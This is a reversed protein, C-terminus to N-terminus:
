RAVEVRFLQDYDQLSRLEVVPPTVQHGLPLAALGLPLTPPVQRFQEPHPVVEQSRPRKTLQLLLQGGAFVRLQGARERVQVVSGAVGAQAPLGYQVGDYSVYGDWSVRREEAGFHEWVADPPLPTLGEEAWRALPVQLTTRHVRRNIQECWARAQTNLDDLDGFTVGPWFSQKVMGISREVKGKTQPKRPRCVRPAVGLTAMFDAFLPNWVPQHGDAEQLFVSKMRDTLAVQPLGGLFAFAEMLCRIMTPTDCRKVFVVFRMRSYSLIATFGYLKHLVGEHDYRFEGWDFQLQEGPATEFRPVPQHGAVAPRLAHVYARLVSAKGRYGVAQLRPLMTACNYLHDRSVWEQIQAKFPDLKSGRQRRPRPQRESPPRLYKRVTNRAVGLSTAIAHISQGQAAL